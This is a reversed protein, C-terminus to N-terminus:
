GKTRLRAEERSRISSVLEKKWVLQLLFFLGAALFLLGFGVYADWPLLLIVNAYVFMSLWYAWWWRRFFFGGAIMLLVATLGVLAAQFDSTGIIILAAYILPLALWARRQRKSFIFLGSILAAMIFGTTALSYGVSGSGLAGEARSKIGKMMQREMVFHGPEFFFSWLLRVPVSMPKTPDRVIFRTKGDEAPRLIFSGWGDLVIISNPEFRRIRPGSSGEERRILGLPYNPSTLPLLEGERRAQWEPDITRANHIDALILNEFWTYSYFGGRDQGIQALWPWADEASARITLARTSRYSPNPMIEDGPLPMASESRTAGWELMWPFVLWFYVAVILIFSGLFVLALSRTKRSPVISRRRLPLPSAVRGNGSSYVTLPLRTDVPIM